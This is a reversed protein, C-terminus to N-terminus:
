LKFGLEMDIKEFKYLLNITLKLILMKALFSKILSKEMMFSSPSLRLAQKFLNLSSINFTFFRNSSTAVYAKNTAYVVVGHLFTKICWKIFTKEIYFLDHFTM